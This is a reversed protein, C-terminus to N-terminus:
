GIWEGVKAAIAPEREPGLNGEGQRVDGGVFLKRRQALCQQLQRQRRGDLGVCLGHPNRRGAM